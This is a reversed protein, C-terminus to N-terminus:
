AAKSFDSFDGGPAEELPILERSSKRALPSRSAPLTKQRGAAPPNSVPFKAKGAVHRTEATATTAGGGVLAQLGRICGQLQEAQASLEESAAATEEANAANTQTVKDMQGVAGSIQDIGTAQEKSSAAIEAILGTVKRTSDNIQMLNSAVTQAITVGNKAKGVSEEILSSTNKAAEASRMALNRVEEAVVAFGKGAEGARAAEVAANLALLNTQFAIEDITKIIKATEQSAREIDLIASNMKNMAETGHDAARKADESFANAHQSTEANKKIMSAMEEIASSSEELSAAQESAGQALSQSSASVQCSASAVQQSGENLTALIPALGRHISRLLVYGGAIACLAYAIVGYLLGARASSALDSGIRSQREGNVQNFESVAEAAANFEKFANAVDGALLVQAEGNKGSKVLNMVEARVKLWKERTGQLKAFLARDEDLTITKAYDAFNSDLKSKLAASETELANREADTKVITFNSTLAYNRVVGTAIERSLYGGPICDSALIGLQADVASFKYGTYGALGLTFAFSLGLGLIIRKRITLSM